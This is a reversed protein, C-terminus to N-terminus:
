TIKEFTPKGNNMEHLQRKVILFRKFQDDLFMEEAAEQNDAEIIGEVLQLETVTRNYKVKFQM